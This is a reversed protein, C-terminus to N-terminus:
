FKIQASPLLQQLVQILGVTAQLQFRCFLWELVALEVWLHTVAVVGVAQTLREQLAGLQLVVRAAAVTVAPLIPSRGGAALMISQQAQLLLNCGLAAPDPREAPRIQGQQALVVAVVAGTVQPVVGLM